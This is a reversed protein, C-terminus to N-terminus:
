RDDEDRQGGRQGPLGRRARGAQHQQRGAPAPREGGHGGAVALHEREVLKRRHELQREPFVRQRAAQRHRVFALADHERGVLRNGRHGAPEHREGRGDDAVAPAPEDRELEEGPRERSTM